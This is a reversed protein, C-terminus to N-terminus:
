SPAFNAGARSARNRLRSTRAASRQRAVNGASFASKMSRRIHSAGNEATSVSYQLSWLSMQFCEGLDALHM